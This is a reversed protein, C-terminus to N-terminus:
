KKKGNIKALMAELHDKVTKEIIHSSSTRGAQRPIQVVKDSYKKIDKIQKPPYSDYTTIFVNPRITKILKYQWNGQKTIDKVLTVYDICDQYALMEMREEQPIIPRLDNKYYKIGQDSDAGVILINGQAKAKTLYRLHGIHLMDWSGITCVIKHGLVQHADLKEKLKPYSLIIKQKIDFKTMSFYNLM